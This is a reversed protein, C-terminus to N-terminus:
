ECTKKCSISYSLPNTFVVPPNKACFSMPFFYISLPFSGFVEIIYSPACQPTIGFEVHAVSVLFAHPLSSCAAFINGFFAAWFLLYFHRCSRLLFLTFFHPLHELSCLIFRPLQALSFSNFFRPLFVSFLFLIFLDAFIEAPM